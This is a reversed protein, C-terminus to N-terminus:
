DAGGQEPDSKSGSFEQHQGPPEALNWKLDYRLTRIAYLLPETNQYRINLPIVQYFIFPLLRCLQAKGMQPSAKTDQQWDAYKGSIQM